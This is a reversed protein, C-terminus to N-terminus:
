TFSVKQKGQLHKPHSCLLSAYNEDAATKDVMGKTSDTCTGASHFAV